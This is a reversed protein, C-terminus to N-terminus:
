PNPFPLHLTPSDPAAPLGGKGKLILSNQAVSERDANCAQATTQEAELVNNPLETAGQIPNLDPTNINVTGDLNFESSADIDNTSDNLPREQIGFM